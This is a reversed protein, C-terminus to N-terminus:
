EDQVQDEVKKMAPTYCCVGLSLLTATGLLGYSTPAVRSTELLHPMKDWILHLIIMAGSTRLLVNTTAM